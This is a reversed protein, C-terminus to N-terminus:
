VVELLKFAVVSLFGALTSMGTLTGGGLHSAEPLMAGAIMTLMAGAALGEIGVLLEHSIASGVLYGTAAGISTLIASFVM